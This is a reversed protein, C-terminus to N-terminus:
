KHIRVTVNMQPVIFKGDKGSISIKVPIRQIEKTFSGTSAGSPIVSTAAASQNGISLVTGSFSDGPYADIYIDVAQGVKIERIATEQVNATVYENKVDAIAGLMTGQGVTEGTIGANKVVQGSAPASIPITQGTPLQEQGITDGVTVSDGETLSWNSLKGASLGVVDTMSSDIYADDVTIFNQRNYFYWFGAIAAAAIVVLIILNVLIVQRARM